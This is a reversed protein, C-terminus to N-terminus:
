LSLSTSMRALKFKAKSSMADTSCPAYLSTRDHLDCCIVFSETMLLCWGTAIVSFFFGPVSQSTVRQAIIKQLLKEAEQSNGKIPDDISLKRGASREKESVGSPWVRM